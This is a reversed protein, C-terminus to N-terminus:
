VAPAPRSARESMERDLLFMGGPAGEVLELKRVIDNVAAVEEVQESVFWQLFAHTAHDSEEIALDVLKDILRSIKKEHELTAVMAAKSSKWESPPADVRQLRVRGDCEHIFDYIKMAHTMEEDAQARMWSAFGTLSESEFHASMSLYLYFAGIEDNIQGNLAEEMSKSMM